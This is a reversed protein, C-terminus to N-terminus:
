KLVDLITPAAPSPERKVVLIPLEYSKFSIIPWNYLNLPVCCQDFVVQARLPVSLNGIRRKSSPLCSCRVCIGNGDGAAVDHVEVGVFLGEFDTLGVGVGVVDEVAAPVKVSDDVVVGLLVEECDTVGKGEVVPVGLGVELTEDVFLRVGVLDAVLVGLGVILAEGEAVFVGDGDVDGRPSIM